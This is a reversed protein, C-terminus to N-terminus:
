VTPEAGYWQHGPYLATISLGWNYALRGEILKRNTDNYASTMVVEAFDGKFRFTNTWEPQPSGGNNVAIFNGFALGNDAWGGSPSSTAILEGKYYQYQTNTESNYAHTILFWGQGMAAPTVLAGANGATSLITTGFSELHTRLRYNTGDYNTYLANGDSPSASLRVLAIMMFSSGSSPCGANSLTFYQQSTAPFNGYYKGNQLAASRNFSAISVVNCNKASQDAITTIANATYSVMSMDLHFLVTPDANLMSNTYFPQFATFQALTALGISLDAKVYLLKYEDGAVPVPLTTGNVLMGDLCALAGNSLNPANIFVGTDELEIKTTENEVGLTVSNNSLEIAANGASLNVETAAVITPTSGIGFSPVYDTNEIAKVITNTGSDYKMLGGTPLATALSVSNPLSATESSMTLYTLTNPAGPVGNVVVGGDLALIGDELNDAALRIETLTLELNSTSTGTLTLQVRESGAVNIGGSPEHISIFQSGGAYLNVEVASVITTPDTSNSPVYDTNPVAASVVNGDSTFKILGGTPLANSLAVSSVLSANPTVLLYPATTPTPAVWTPPGNGGSALHHNATGANLRAITNVGSGYWLSGATAGAIGASTLAAYPPQYNVNPIGNVIKEDEYALIGNALNPAKINIETDSLQLRTDGGDVELKIGKSSEISAVPGVEALIIEDVVNTGDVYRKRPM